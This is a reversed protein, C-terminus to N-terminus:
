GVRSHKRLLFVLSLFGGVLLASTSPEPVSEVNYQAVDGLTTGLAVNGFEATGEGGALGFLATSDFVTSGFEFNGTYTADLLSNANLNTTTFNGDIATLDAQNLVWLNETTVNGTFAGYGINQFEFVVFYTQGPTLNGSGPYVSYGNSNKYAGIDAYDSSSYASNDVANAFYQRNSDGDINFQTGSTSAYSGYGGNNVDTLQSFTYSGWLTGDAPVATAIAPISRSLVVGGLNSNIELANGSTNLDNLTLGSVITATGTGGNDTLSWGSGFGTGGNSSTPSSTTFTTGLSYSSFDDSAIPDARLHSSM